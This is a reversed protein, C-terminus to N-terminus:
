FESEQLYDLGNSPIQINLLDFQGNGLKIALPLQGTEAGLYREFWQAEGGSNGVGGIRVNLSPFGFYQLQEDTYPWLVFSRVEARANDSPDRGDFLVDTPQEVYVWHPGKGGARDQITLEALAPPEFWVPNATVWQLTSSRGLLLPTSQQKAGADPALFPVMGEFARYLLFERAALDLVEQQADFRTEWKRTILYFGQSVLALLMGSITLAVLLEILTFGRQRNRLDSM